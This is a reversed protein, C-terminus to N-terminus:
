KLNLWTISAQLISAFSVWVLYPINAYTVWPVFKYIAIMAWILTVLVLVIDVFALINNRLGFQLPTFALNFIINLIFPLLIIFPIRTNAFMLVVKGFTILIVVYLVTWVPGFIWSPPSWFPKLLQEYWNNM